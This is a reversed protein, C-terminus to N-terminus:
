LVPPTTRQACGAVEEFRRTSRHEVLIKEGPEAARQVGAVCGKGLFFAVKHALAAAQRKGHAISKGREKDLLGFQRGATGAEVLQGALTLRCGSADLENALSAGVHWRVSQVYPGDALADEAAEIAAFGETSGGVAHKDLAV